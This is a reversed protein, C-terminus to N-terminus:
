SAFLRTVHFLGTLDLLFLAILILTFILIVNRVWRIWRKNKLFVTKEELERALLPTLDFSADAPVDANLYAVTKEVLFNTELEQYCHECARVHQLFRETERDHLAGALYEPIMSRVEECSLGGASQKEQMGAM